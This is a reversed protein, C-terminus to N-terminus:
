LFTLESAVAYCVIGTHFPSNAAAQGQANVNSTGLLAARSMYRRSGWTWLTYIDLEEDCEQLFVFHDCRGVMVTGMMATMATVMDIRLTEEPTKGFYNLVTSDVNLVAVDAKCAQKLLDETFSPIPFNELTAEFQLAREISGFTNKLFDYNKKVLESTKSLKEYEETIAPGPDPATMLPGLKEGLMSNTMPEFPYAQYAWFADLSMSGRIDTNVLQKCGKKVPDLVLNCAWVAGSAFQAQVSEIQAGLEAPAGPYNLPAGQIECDGGAAARYGSLLSQVWAFTAGAPQWPKGASAACDYENGTCAAASKSAFSKPHWGTASQYPVLGPQQEYVYPCPRTMESNVTGTWYLRVLMKILQAPARIALAGMQGIWGCTGSQVQNPSQTLVVRVIDCLMWGTTPNGSKIQRVPPMSGPVSAGVSGDVWSNYTGWDTISANVFKPGKPFMKALKVLAKHAAFIAKCTADEPAKGSVSCYEDFGLEKMMSDYVSGEAVNPDSPWDLASCIQWTDDELVNSELFGGKGKVDAFEEDIIQNIKVSLEQATRSKTRLQVLSFPDTSCSDDAAAGHLLTLTTGLLICTAKLM